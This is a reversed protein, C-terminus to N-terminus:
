AVAPVHAKIVAVAEDAAVGAETAGLFPTLADVIAAKVGDAAVALADAKASAITAKATTVLAQANPDAEIFAEVAKFAALADAEIQAISIM